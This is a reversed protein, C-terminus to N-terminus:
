GSKDPRLGVPGRPDHSGRRDAGGAPCPALSRIELGLPGAADLVSAREKIQALRDVLFRTM